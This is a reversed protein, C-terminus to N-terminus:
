LADKMTKPEHMSLLSTDNRLKNRTMPRADKDGIIQEVLHHRKVYM